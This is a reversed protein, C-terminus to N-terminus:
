ILFNLGQAPSVQQGSSAAQQATATPNRSQDYAYRALAEIGTVSLLAASVPMSSAAPLLASTTSSGLASLMAQVEAPGNGAAVSTPSAYSSLSSLTSALGQSAQAEPSPPAQAPAQSATMAKTIAQKASGTLSLSNQFAYSTLAANVNLDM